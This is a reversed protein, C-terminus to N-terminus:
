TSIAEAAEVAERITDFVHDDGIAEVAGARSWLDHVHGEPRAVFLEIGDAQLANRLQVLADAGDTDTIAVAEVDLVLAAPRDEAARIRERVGDLFPNAAAFFLPGDIRLVLVGRVPELDPTREIDRYSDNTPDRGLTRLAPRSSRAILLLLSLVIGILIGQMIGFFLIGLGSAMFFVWDPRNTVYYRKMSDFEILGVMADIIIAGLAAAPLNEFLSALFLMTLLILVANILSSMQSRQGAADAVGTKSLSGSNVFGGVLGSLTQAGGQAILEQNPDIAYGHKTSMERAAALSESFGVFVVALAGVLLSSITSGWDIDPIQVTFLGTPVPGTIAVGKEALDLATVAMISLASVILARPWRPLFRRMLLLTALCATGVVLTTGNTDPIEEITGVLIQIYSGDPKDVGLLKPIQEIIIGIAFGLIFGGLVAKSLFNSIWGARLIGLLLYVAGAVLALAAAFPVVDETGMASQGVIPAIVAASVAGVTASPGQVVQKSTGLIAYAILAAFATYLGYQVPVGVLTAYALGQPVLLAWVSLAAIGDASLWGKEYSRAWGLIPLYRRVGAPPAETDEM